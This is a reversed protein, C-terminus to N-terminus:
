TGLIELMSALLSIDDAYELDTCIEEGVAVGLFGKHAARNMIWDMPELFLEPAVVFGQRVGSSTEFWPSLEEDVGVCSFTNSYLDKLLQLIKEPIGKSRLLLWLCQRDVSDFASRFDVYRVGGL